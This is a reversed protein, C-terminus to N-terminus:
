GKPRKEEPRAIGLILFLIGPSSFALFAWGGPWRSEIIFGLLYFLGLSVLTVLGGALEHWWGLVMGVVIGTPFFLLGVWQRASVKIPDFGEGMFFLALM